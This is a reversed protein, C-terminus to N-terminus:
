KTTTDEFFHGSSSSTSNSIIAKQTDVDIKSSPNSTSTASSNGNGENEGNATGTVATKTPEFPNAKGADYNTHKYLKLDDDTIEYTRIVQENENKLPTDLEEKVDSLTEPMAYTLPSPVVKNIPNYEYFVVALVLVIALCLLLMICTERIVSKLM